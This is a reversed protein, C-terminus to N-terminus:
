PAPSHDLEFFRLSDAGESILAASAFDTPEQIAVTHSLYVREGEPLGQGAGVLQCRWLPGQANERLRGYFGRSSEGPLRGPNEPRANPVEQAVLNLGGPIEPMAIPANALHRALIEDVIHQRNILGQASPNLHSGRM